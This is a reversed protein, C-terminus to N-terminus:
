QRLRKGTPQLAADAALTSQQAFRPGDPLKGPPKGNHKQFQQEVKAVELALRAAERLVKQIDHPEANSRNDSHNRVSPMVAKSNPSAPKSLAAVSASSRSSGSLSAPAPTHSPRASRDAMRMSDVGASGTRARQMNSFLKGLLTTAKKSHAQPRVQESQAATTKPAAKAVTSATGQGARPLLPRRLKEPSEEIGIVEKRPASPFSRPADAAESSKYSTAPPPRPAAPAAAAAPQRLADRAEADGVKAEVPEGQSLKGPDEEAVEPLSGAVSADDAAGNEADQMTADVSTAASIQPAADACPAQECVEAKPQTLRQLDVSRGAPAGHAQLGPQYAPPLVDGELPALFGGAAGAHHGANHSSAAAMSGDVGLQHFAPAMMNYLGSQWHQQIIECPSVASKSIAVQLDECSADLWLELTSEPCAFAVCVDAPLMYGTLEEFQTSNVMLNLMCTGDVLAHLEQRGIVEWPLEWVAEAEGERHFAIAHQSWVALLAEEEEEAALRCAFVDLEDHSSLELSLEQSSDLIDDPSLERVRSTLGSHKVELQVLAPHATCLAALPAGPAVRRLARWLLEFLVEHLHPDPAAELLSAVLLQMSAVHSADQLLATEARKRCDPSSAELLAALLEAAARRARLVVFAHAVHQQPPTTAGGSAAVRLLADTVGPMSLLDEAAGGPWVEPMLAACSAATAQALVLSPSGGSHPHAHAHASYASFAAATYLLGSRACSAAVWLTEVKGVGAAPKEFDEELPQNLAAHETARRAFEALGTAGRAAEAWHGRQCAHRFGQAERLAAQDDSLQLSQVM